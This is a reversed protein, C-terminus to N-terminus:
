SVSFETAVQTLGLTKALALSARNSWSTSYFGLQEEQLAAWCWATVATKAYGRRRYGELTDVGAEIGHASRRVTQCISVAREEVIVAYFPHTDDLEEICDAFGSELVQANNHSILTAGSTLYKGKPVIFAPGAGSRGTCYNDLISAYRSQSPPEKLNPFPWQSAVLNNLQQRKDFPVDQRFCTTYDKNTWSLHFAPAQRRSPPYPENSTHMDGNADIVYLTEIHAQLLNTKQRM